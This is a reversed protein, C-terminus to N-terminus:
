SKKMEKIIESYPVLVKYLSDSPIKGKAYFGIGHILRNDIIIADETPESIYDIYKVIWKILTKIDTFIVETPKKSNYIPTVRIYQSLERKLKDIKIKLKEYCDQCLYILKAKLNDLSTGKVEDFLIQYRNAVEYHIRTSGCVICRQLVEYLLVRGCLACKLSPKKLLTVWVHKHKKKIRLIKAIFGIIKFIL